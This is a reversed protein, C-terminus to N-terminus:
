PLPAPVGTLVGARVRAVGSFAPHSVQLTNLDFRSDAGIGTIRIGAYDLKEGLVARQARGAPQVLWGYTGKPTMLRAHGAGDVVLSAREDMGLGVVDKAGRARVNALFAILRGMRARIMFHSDTFIRRMRPLHLFRDVVTVGPGMPNDLAEPSTIGDDGFAGYGWWGMIALGASTGGIPRDRALRDILRSLPTAQWFRVYRSQDGGAIFVGDARELAALIRPDYAAKRESFVFTEVSAVGGIEKLFAEGLEGKQSARLVVIHGHGARAVFWRFAEVDWDGGGSLLLGPARRGPTPLRRDGAMYHAYGPGGDQAHANLPAALLTLALLCAKAFKVRPEGMAIPPRLSVPRAHPPLGGFQASSRGAAGGM